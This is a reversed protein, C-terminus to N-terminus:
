ARRIPRACAGRRRSTSMAIPTPLWWGLHELANHFAQEAIDARMQAAFSRAGSGLMAEDATVLAGANPVVAGGNKNILSLVRQALNGFDNALDSNM